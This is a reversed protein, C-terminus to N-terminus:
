EGPSSLVRRGPCLTVTVSLTSSRKGHRLGPPTRTARAGLQFSFGMLNARFRFWSHVERSGQFGRLALHVVGISAKKDGELDAPVVKVTRGDIKILRALVLDPKPRRPM